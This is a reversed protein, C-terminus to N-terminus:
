IALSDKLNERYITCALGDFRNLGDFSSIWVYGRSDKYICNNVGQSLGNDVNLHNFRLQSPQSYCYLEISLFIILALPQRFSM